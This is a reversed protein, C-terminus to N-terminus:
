LNARSNQLVEPETNRHLSVSNTCVNLDHHLLTFSDVGEEVGMMDMDGETPQFVHYAILLVLMYLLVQRSLGGGNAMFM